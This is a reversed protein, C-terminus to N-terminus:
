PALAAARQVLDTYVTPDDAVIVPFGRGTSARGGCSSAPTTCTAATPSSSIPAATSAAVGPATAAAHQGMVAPGPGVTTSPRGAAPRRRGVACEGAVDLIVSRLSICRSQGFFAVRLARDLEESVALGQEKAAQVAELAPLTTVPWQWPQGQWVEWGADPELGGAVPVEAELTRKPTPRSNAVELAFVRHDFRVVGELDLARRARHLRYCPWTPGRAPSTPGCWSPQRPFRSILQDPAVVAGTRGM